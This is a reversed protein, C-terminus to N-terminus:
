LADISKMFQKLKERRIDMDEDDIDEIPLNERLELFHTDDRSLKTFATHIRRPQRLYDSDSASGNRMDAQKLGTEGATIVRYCYMLMGAFGAALATSVSSGGTSISNQSNDKLQSIFLPIEGPVYFDCHDSSVWSFRTGTGTCAGIKICETKMTGPLTNDRATAGEDISACFMVINHDSHAKRIADRLESATGSTDSGEEISWSMSIIDVGQAIAWEIADAASQPTFTRQGGPGRITELQAIYLKAMPCVKSICQAMWTGHEGSPVYFGGRRGFFDDLQHFSEGNQVQHFFDGRSIDIGDDIIAIKVEKISARPKFDKVFRTFKQVSDMWKSERPEEPSSNMSASHSFRDQAQVECTVSPANEHNKSLESKFREIYENLRTPTELGDRIIVTVLKLPETTGGYDGFCLRPLAVYKLQTEFQLIKGLTPLLNEPLTPYPLGSLDFSLKLEKGPEYLAKTATQPNYKELIYRLMFTLLRDQEIRRRRAEDCPIDENEKQDNQEQDVQRQDDTGESREQLFALRLQFPTLKKNEKAPIFIDPRAEVLSKLVELRDWPAPHLSPDNEIGTINNLVRETSKVGRSSEDFVDATLPKEYVQDQDKYAQDKDENPQDKDDTTLTIHLPTKDKEGKHNCEATLPDDPLSKSDKFALIMRSTCPSEYEIALHICNKSAPTQAQLLKRQDYQGNLILLVFGHCKSKIALQLPTLESESSPSDLMRPYKWIIWEIFKEYQSDYERIIKHLINDQSKMVSFNAPFTKGVESFAKLDDSRIKRALELVKELTVPKQGGTYQGM